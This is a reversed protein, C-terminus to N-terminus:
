MYELGKMECIVSNLDRSLFPNAMTTSCMRVIVHALKVVRIVWGMEEGRRIGLKRNKRKSFCVVCSKFTAEHALSMLIYEGCILFPDQLQKGLIVFCGGAGGRNGKANRM